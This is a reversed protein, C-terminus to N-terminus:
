RDRSDILSTGAPDALGVDPAELEARRAGRASGPRRQMALARALALQVVCRQSRQRSLGAGAGDAESVPIHLPLAGDHPTTM